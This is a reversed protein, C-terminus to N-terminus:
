IKKGNKKNKRATGQVVGSSSSHLALSRVSGLEGNFKIPTVVSGRNTVMTMPPKRRPAGLSVTSRTIQRSALRKKSVQM